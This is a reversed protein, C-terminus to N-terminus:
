NSREKSFESLKKDLLDTCDTVDAIFELVIFCELFEVGVSFKISFRWAAKVNAPDARLQCARSIVKNPDQSYRRISVSIFGLDTELPRRYKTSLSVPLTKTISIMSTSTVADGSAM